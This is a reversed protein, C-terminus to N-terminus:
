EEEVRSINGQYSITSRHSSNVSTTTNENAFLRIHFEMNEGDNSAEFKVQIHRKEPKELIELNRAIGKYKIGGESGYGGGAHRVGFYPLYVDVSDGNFRIYNPNGILNINGGGLPTAWDNEIQFEKSTVLKKLDDYDSIEDTRTVGCSILSFFVSLFLAKKLLSATNTYLAKM